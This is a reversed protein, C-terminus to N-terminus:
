HQKDTQASISARELCKYSQKYSLLNQVWDFLSIMIDDQDRIDLTHIACKLEDLKIHTFKLTELHIVTM